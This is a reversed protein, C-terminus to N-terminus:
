RSGRWTTGLKDEEKPWPGCALSYFSAGHYRTRTAFVDQASRLRELPMVALHALVLAVLASIPLGGCLVRRGSPHGRAGQSEGDGFRLQNWVERSREEV